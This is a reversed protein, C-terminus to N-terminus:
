QNCLVVKRGNLLVDMPLPLQARGKSCPAPSGAVAPPGINEWIVPIRKILDIFDYTNTFAKDLATDINIGQKIGVADLLRIVAGLFDPGYMASKRFEDLVTMGADIPQQVLRLIQVLYESRGSVNGALTSINQVITSIVQERNSVLATLTHISDLMPGLGEGDGALFTAVNDTFTNIQTPDLNNLVPQLGNFLITIDFSPETMTTPVTTMSHAAAGGEAPGVVDVYRLGTLAQFKIALRSSAVIGFRKDITFKVEAYSRGDSRKLKLTEVKGVRVGRVRVDAGEHVGSVDTFEAVLTRTTADVPQIVANAIVILLLVSFATALGFRWLWPFLKTM